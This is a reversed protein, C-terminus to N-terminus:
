VKRCQVDPLAVSDLISQLTVVKSHVVQGNPQKWTLGELCLSRAEQCFQTFYVNMNPHSKSGFWIGSILMNM